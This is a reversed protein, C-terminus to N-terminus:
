VLKYTLVVEWIQFLNAAMKGYNPIQKTPIGFIGGNQIKKKSKKKKSFLKYIVINMGFMFTRPIIKFFIPKFTSHGRLIEDGSLRM